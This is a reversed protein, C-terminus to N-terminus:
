MTTLIGVREERTVLGEEEMVGFFPLIYSHSVDLSKALNRTTPLRFQIGSPTIILNIAQEHAFFFKV